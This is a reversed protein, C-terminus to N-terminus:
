KANGKEKKTKPGPKKASNRRRVAGTARVLRGEVNHLARFVDGTARHKVKRIVRLIYDATQQSVSKRGAKSKPM